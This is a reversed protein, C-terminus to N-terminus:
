IIIMNKDININSAIIASTKIGSIRILPTYKNNKALIKLDEDRMSRSIYAKVDKNTRMYGYIIETVSYNLLLERSVAQKFIQEINFQDALYHGGKPGRIIMYSIYPIHTQHLKTLVIKEITYM